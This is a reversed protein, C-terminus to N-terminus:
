HNLCVGNPVGGGSKALESFGTRDIRWRTPMLRLPVGSGSPELLALAFVLYNLYILAGASQWNSM